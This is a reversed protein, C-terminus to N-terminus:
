ATLVSVGAEKFLQIQLESVEIGTVLKHIKEVSAVKHLSIGGIKTHDTVVIVEDAVEIMGIKAPVLQEEFHTLGVKPHIAPTGVFAKHVHITKLVDNTVMGNLMFSEPYLIGGTVIVKIGKSDKLEAAINIDNTVVTINTKNVLNKAIQLTTTGSDLIIYEGENILEAAKQGIREKEEVRETARVTFSPESSIGDALVVGGHTRRLRGEREIESLDRRITAEHVNFEESLQSVSAVNNKKVYEIIKLKREAALM